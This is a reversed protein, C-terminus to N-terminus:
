SPPSPTVCIAIRPAFARVGQGGIAAVITHRSVLALMLQIPPPFVCIATRPARALSLVFALSLSRTVNATNSYMNCNNFTATSRDVM